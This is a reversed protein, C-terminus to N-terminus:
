IYALRSVCPHISGEYRQRQYHIPIHQDTKLGLEEEARRVKEEFGDPDPLKLTFFWTDVQWFAGCLCTSVSYFYFCVCVCVCVCV